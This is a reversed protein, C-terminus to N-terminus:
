QEEKGQLLGAINYWLVGTKYILIQLSAANLIVMINYRVDTRNAIDAM